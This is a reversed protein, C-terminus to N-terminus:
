QIENQKGLVSMYFDCFCSLSGTYDGQNQNPVNQYHGNIAMVGLTCGSNPWIM